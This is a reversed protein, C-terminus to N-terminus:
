PTGFRPHGVDKNLVSNRIQEYISKEILDEKSVTV